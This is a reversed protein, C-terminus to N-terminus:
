EDTGLSVSAIKKWLFQRLSAVTERQLSARTSAVMLAVHSLMCGLEATAATGQLGTRCVGLLHERMNRWLSENEEERFVILVLPEQEVRVLTM